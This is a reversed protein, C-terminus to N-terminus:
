AEYGAAFIFQALGWLFGFGAIPIIIFFLHGTSFYIALFIGLVVGSGIMKLLAKKRIASKLAGHVQDVAADARAEDLGKAVLFRKVKEPNKTEQLKQVVLHFLKEQTDNMISNRLVKARRALARKCVVPAQAGMTSAAIGRVREMPRDEQLLQECQRVDGASPMQGNLDTHRQGAVGDERLTPELCSRAMGRAAIAIAV